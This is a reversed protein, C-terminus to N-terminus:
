RDTMKKFIRYSVGFSEVRLLLGTQWGDLLFFFFFFFGFFGYDVGWRGCLWLFFFGFGFDGGWGLM